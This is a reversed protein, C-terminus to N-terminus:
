TAVISSPFSSANFVLRTFAAGFSSSVLLGDALWNCLTLMANPIFSLATPPIVIQYGWPGPPLVGDIGPFERDDIYSISLIDLNMGTQVTVASFMIATYSVLWWKVRDGRRNDPDFLATMCKFFLVIIMGLILRVFPTLM